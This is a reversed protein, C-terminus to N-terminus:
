VCTGVSMYVYVYAPVHWTWVTSVWKMHLGMQLRSLSCWALNWEIVAGVAIMPVHMSIIWDSVSLLEKHSTQPTYTISSTVMLLWWGKLSLWSSVVQARSVRSKLIGWGPCMLCSNLLLNLQLVKLSLWKTSGNKSYYSYSVLHRHSILLCLGKQRISVSYPQRYM